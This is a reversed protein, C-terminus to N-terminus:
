RIKNNKKKSYILIKTKSIAEKRKFSFSREVNIEFNIKNIENRTNKKEVTIKGNFKM